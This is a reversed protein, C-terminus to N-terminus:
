WSAQYYFDGEMPDSLAVQLQRITEEIDEMYGQDYDTSGFFFGSATPLLKMAAEPELIVKGDELIPDWCKETMVMGNVVTDPVMQSQRQVELCADLLEKLTKKEVYSEQCEDRGEQVNDVFWKHIANAKRWYAAHYIIYAPQLATKAPIGGKSVKIDWRRSSPYHDWNKVYVKKTLYMDLGM